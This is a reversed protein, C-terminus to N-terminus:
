QSIATCAVVEIPGKGKIEKVGLSKGECDAEVQRWTDATMTVAGPDGASTMRSAVNVTDGWVDFQFRDHGVVGAVVPGMSIGVRTEWGPGSEAAAAILDLGCKVATLASESQPQLLGAAAMFEDGITKIKDLGHRRTVEEFREFVDQLHKVVHEPSFQNCYATFGVIDCFLITVDGYARPRVKGDRKLEAAIVSPLAVNLLEDSRRKEAKLDALFTAAGDSAYKRHLCAKLRARLLVPNFPKPLYDEAGAEICSIITEMNDVASIVIVPIRRRRMDSKLATLVQHGDMKPMELDLLVLDFESERLMNIGIAGEAAEHVNHYGEKDLQRIMVSRMFDDDDIVLIRSEKIAYDNM